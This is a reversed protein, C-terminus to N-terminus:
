WGLVAERCRKADVRGGRRAGRLARKIVDFWLIVVVCIQLKPTNHVGVRRARRPRRPAPLGDSASHFPLAWAPDVLNRVPQSSPPPTPHPTFISGQSSLLLPHTKCSNLYGSPKRFGAGAEPNVFTGYRTSSPLRPAPPSDCLGARAGPGSGSFLWSHSTQTAEPLPRNKGFAIPPRGLSDDRGTHATM